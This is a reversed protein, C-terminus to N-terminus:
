RTWRSPCRTSARQFWVCWRGSWRSLSSWRWHAPFFSRLAAVWMRGTSTATPADVQIGFELQFAKAVDRPTLLDDKPIHREFKEAIVPRLLIELEDKGTPKSLTHVHITPEPARPPAPMVPEPLIEVPAPAVVAAPKPTPPTQETVTQPRDCHPCSIEFTEIDGSCSYCVGFERSLGRVKSALRWLHATSPGRVVSRANVVKQHVLLQLQEFSMGEAAQDDAKLVYWPGLRQKIAARNASNDQVQCHLCTKGPGANFAGCFPCLCEIESATAVPTPAVPVDDPTAAIGPATIQDTEEELYPTAMSM